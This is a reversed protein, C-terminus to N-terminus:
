TLLHIHTHVSLPLNRYKSLLASSTQPSRLRPTSSGLLDRHSCLKTSTCIRLQDTIFSNIFSSRAASRVFKFFFCHSATDVVFNMCILTRNVLCVFYYYCCYGICTIYLLLFMAFLKMIM